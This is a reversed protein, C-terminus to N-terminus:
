RYSSGYPRPPSMRRDWLDRDQAILPVFYDDHRSASSSERHRISLGDAYGATWGASLVDKHFQNDGYWWHFSEDFRVGTEARFLFCFGCIHRGSDDVAGPVFPPDDPLPGWPAHIDPYVLGVKRRACMRALLPLTGPLITIDDNLMAIFKAGHARAADAGDNWMRHIRHESDHPDVILHVCVGDGKLVALLRDLEPPHYRTPIVACILPKPPPNLAQTIRIFEAFQAPFADVLKQHEERYGDPQLIEGNVMRVPCGCLRAIDNMGSVEDFSRLLTAHNLADALAYRDERMALTIPAAGTTDGHTGFLYSKGDYYMEGARPEHRDYYIDLEISELRLLPVGALFQPVWAFVMESPDYTPEGGPLLGPVNLVWRVVHPADWPNGAITEPYVAIYEEDLPPLHFPTNWAPNPQSVSIYAREGALNLQHCLHHLVKLGASAHTYNYCFILYPLHKRRIM